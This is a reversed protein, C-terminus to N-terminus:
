SETPQVHALGLSEMVQGQAAWMREKGAPTAHDFGSLHLAGHVALLIIEEEPTHGAAEAQAQAVPYAIILDGLHGSDSMPFDPDPTNEFSLVDTPAAIGRYQQNLQQITETHTIVVTVTASSRDALSRNFRDLTLRVAEALRSTELGAAFPEDIELDVELM